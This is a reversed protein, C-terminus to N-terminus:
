NRLPKGTALMHEIRALTGPTHALQMFHTRELQLLATEDIPTAGDTAGGTLVTALHETVVLDHPTVKGAAALANVGAMLMAKGREGSLTVSRQAPPVYGPVLALAKAKADALLRERNMTVGDTSRLYGLTRADAASTSTKTMAITQFVHGAAAMAKAPDGALPAVHRLLMEKCGGWGPIIGVGAEVLGMYTEAAAQVADSHLLIETGGGLAMGAPAGVVPFPAHQLAAYTQQGDATSQEVTDWAAINLSFMALALNAGVSFNDGDNYIVLAKYTGKGDGVAAIVQKIMALIDPDITNMKSTFELCLVGDGIDWVSASGNKMVPKSARKVDALSVVGAPRPVAAYEGSPLLEQLVGADVRYFPKNMAVLAPVAIGYTGLLAAFADAGLQDILEFPGFTWGYGLKMAADVASVRDAITPVLAAAYSLAQALLSAAFRGGRDDFTVLTKLASKGRAAALSALAPTREARYEGTALDVVEKRRGGKEDPVLRTFGGGKSKRGTNGAAILRDMPAFSTPLALFADGAPLTAHFSKMIHPMLDLGVLDTLGFIGTKPLGMPKGCVADTEEVSLGHKLAEHMACYMFFTGIRNAIFGPTDKCIVVGKGLRVDGTEHLAATVEPRTLPGSVIELLRMYRPPNFFHTIAFDAAFSASQGAILDKLPITSTNSTIISGPRRVADLKQYLPTKVAPDEFVAEIIWDVERVADLDDEVNGPTVLAVAEASMFPLPQQTRMRSLAGDALANRDTAGPPVIDLLLVPIGANALQAAIGSGMTGAGVVAARRIEIAM